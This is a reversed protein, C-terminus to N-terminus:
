PCDAPHRCPTSSWWRDRGALARRHAVGVRQIGKGIRGPIEGAEGIRMGVLRHVLRRRIVPQRHVLIDAADLVGDQMQEIRAIEGAGHGLQAHDLHGFREGAQEGLAHDAVLGVLVRSPLQTCASSTSFRSPLANRRSVPSPLRRDPADSFIDLDLFFTIAGSVMMASYPASVMRQNMSDSVGGSRSMSHVSAPASPQQRKTLRMQRRHVSASPRGAGPVGTAPSSSAELVSRWAVCLAM